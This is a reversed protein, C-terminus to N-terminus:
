FRMGFGFNIRRADEQQIQLFLFPASGFNQVLGLGIWIKTREINEKKAILLNKGADVDVLPLSDGPLIKKARLFEAVNLEVAGVLKIGTLRVAGDATAVTISDADIAVKSQGENLSGCGPLDGDGFPGDHDCGDM